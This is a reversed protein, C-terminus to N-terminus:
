LGVVEGVYIIIFLGECCVKIFYEIFMNGFFGKEDGVLDIVIIYM